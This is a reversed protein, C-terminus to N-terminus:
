TQINISSQNSSSQHNTKFANETLGIYTKSNATTTVTAQYIVSSKLCKGNMSCQANNEAAVSETTLKM